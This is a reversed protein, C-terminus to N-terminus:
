GAKKSDLYRTDVDPPTPFRGNSGDEEYATILALVDVTEVKEAPVRPAQGMDGEPLAQGIHESGNVLVVGVVPFVGSM